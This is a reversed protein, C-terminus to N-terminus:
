PSNQRIEFLVPDSHVNLWTYRDVDIKDVRILVQYKGAIWGDVITWKGADITKRVSDNPRVRLGGPASIRGQPDLEPRKLYRQRITPLRYIDPLQIATTEGNWDNPTTSAGQVIIEKKLGNHIEIDILIPEGFEFVAKRPKATVQVPVQRDKPQSYGIATFILTLILVRLVVDAAM